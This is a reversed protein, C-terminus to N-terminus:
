VTISQKRKVIIPCQSIRHRFFSSLSLVKNAVFVNLVITILFTCYTAPQWFFCVSM